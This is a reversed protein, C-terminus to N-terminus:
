CIHRVFIFLVNKVKGTSLLSRLYSVGINHKDNVLIYINLIRSCCYASESQSNEQLSRANSALHEFCICNTNLKIAFMRISMMTIFPWNVATLFPIRQGTDYSRIEPEISCSVSTKYKKFNDASRNNTKISRLSLDMTFLGYLLYSILRTRETM